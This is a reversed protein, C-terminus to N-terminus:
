EEKTSEVMLGLEPDMTLLHPGITANRDANLILPRHNRLWASGAWGEPPEVDRFEDVVRGLSLRLSRRLLEKTLRGGPRIGMDVGEGDPDLRPLGEDGWLVVLEISPGSLRTLASVAPHTFADDEYLEEMPQELFDSDDPHPIAKVQAQFEKFQNEGMYEGHLRMLEDTFGQFAEHHEEGYVAEILREM